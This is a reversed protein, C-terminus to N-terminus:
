EPSALDFCRPMGIILISSEIITRWWGADKRGVSFLGKGKM